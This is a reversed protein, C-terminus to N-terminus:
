QLSNARNDKVHQYGEALGDYKGKYNGFNIFGHRYMICLYTNIYTCIDMKKLVEVFFGIRTYISVHASEKRWDMTIHIVGTSDDRTKRVAEKGVIKQDIGLMRFSDDPQHWVVVRIEAKM